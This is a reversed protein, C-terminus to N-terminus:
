STTREGREAARSLVHKSMRIREMERPEFKLLGGAYVRGRATAASNNLETVLSALVAPTLAARPYLGHAVNLHRAGYPNLVFKPPRRAMYTALIPAPPPLKLSWWPTRHSALYGRDVGARRARRLFIEVAHREQPDLDDLNAPIDVVRRLENLSVLAEGATLLERAKTVSRCLIREPLGRADGDLIWTANSGTAAGRHVSFLEGLEMMEGSGGTSPPGTLQTWRPTARLTSASIPQGGSLSHISRVSKVSQFRVTDGTTGARFCTIVATTQTGIFPLSRPDVVHLSHGGLGDLLLERLAAGYNVDLWESSTVFCGIDGPRARLAVAIFFLIHLGALGSLRVGLQGAAAQAWRKTDSTLEHHRVYPPNGVSATIGSSAPISCRLYDDHRVELWTLSLVAARARTILTALPDFDIALVPTNPLLQAVAIAFRGSGCGPDIVRDPRQEAVWKVMPKVLTSPTYIAGTQRRVAASRLALLAEGLPDEGARIAREIQPLFERARQKSVSSASRTLWQQEAQSLTGGVQGAGLAAALCALTDLNEVRVM